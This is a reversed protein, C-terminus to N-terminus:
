PHAGISRSLHGVVGLDGSGITSFTLNGGSLVLSGSTDSPNLTDSAGWAIYGSPVAGTFASGGFNMTGSGYNTDNRQTGGGFAYVSGTIQTSYDFGFADTEPDAGITGDGIWAAAETVDRLWMLRATINVACAYVGLTVQVSIGPHKVPYGIGGGADVGRVTGVLDSM